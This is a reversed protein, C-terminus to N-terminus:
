PHSTTATVATAVALMGMAVLVPSPRSCWRARVASSVACVWSPSSSSGKVPRSRMQTAVSISRPAHHDDPASTLDRRLRDFQWTGPEADVEPACPASSDVSILTTM